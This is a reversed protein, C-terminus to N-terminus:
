ATDGRKNREQERRHQWGRYELGNGTLWPVATTADIHLDVFANPDANQGFRPAYSRAEINDRANLADLLQPKYDRWHDPPIEELPQHENLSPLRQTNRRGWLRLDRDLAAQQVGRALDLIQSSELNWGSKGAIEIFEKIPIRQKPPPARGLAELDAPRLRYRILNGEHLSRFQQGVYDMVHQRDAEPINKEVAMAMVNEPRFAKWELVSRRVAERVFDRYVLAAKDPAEIEARLTKYNEASAMYAEVYAERLLSVNNLEYVGMLGDIYSRDDMTLFSMPALDAKLLPINSAIRSTRKNIDDFAQLYPIHVLLFFSQEFPDTIAAAKEILIRFEEEIEFQDDLPKYNSHTIGVGMRRLRGAMAPDALLGDALLAHINLIDRRCIAMDALDDVVYQIAEKHNLIMVAEKRDKGSAEQGFRILRETELISYTNGEMRSSAWSLDVLLRELIRRAYAGAPLAAAPRGAERLQKRETEAFYFSKGPIYRDLFEKNYRSPKRRNYPTALYARVVAAGALTYATARGKGSVELKNEDVLKKLTRWVTTDSADAAANRRIDERRARPHAAVYDLIAQDYPQM